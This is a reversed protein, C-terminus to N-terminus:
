ELVVARSLGVKPWAWPKFGQSKAKALMREVAEPKVHGRPEVIYLKAGPKLCRRLQGFFREQDPVEHAMWFALAFDVLESVNIDDTACKRPTIRAALGQREARRRMLDLMKPQMDASIVRGEPGVLRALAISFYGMGCGIDLVTAGPRVYPALFVEPKHVLRRLPNDFTYILWWPCYHPTQLLPM